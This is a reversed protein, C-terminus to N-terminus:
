SPTKKLSEKLAANEAKITEVPGPTVTQETVIRNIKCSELAILQPFLRFLFEATRPPETDRAIRRTGSFPKEGPLRGTVAIEYISMM